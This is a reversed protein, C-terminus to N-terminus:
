SAAFRTQSAAFVKFLVTKLNFNFDHDARARCQVRGRAVVQVQVETQLHTRLSVSVKGRAVNFTSMLARLHCDIVHDGSCQIITWEWVGAEKVLPGSSSLKTRM